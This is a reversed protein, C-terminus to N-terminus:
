RRWYHPGNHYGYYGYHPHYPRYSYVGYPEYYPRPAPYIACGALSALMMALVSSIMVGQKFGRM